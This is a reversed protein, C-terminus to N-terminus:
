MITERVRSITYKKSFRDAITSAVYSDPKIDCIYGCSTVWGVIEQVVKRTDGINGADVHISFRLKEYNFNSELKLKDLEVLLKDAYELSKQTETVIKSRLDTIKKTKIKDYFFIGGNGINHIAIVVAINTKDYNMSDTGVIIHYNRDEGNSRVFEMIIRAVDKITVQGHTISRM